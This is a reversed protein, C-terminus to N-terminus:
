GMSHLDIRTHVRVAVREAADVLIDGYPIKRAKRRKGRCELLASVSSVKALSSSDPPGSAASRSNDVEHTLPSASSLRMRGDDHPKEATSSALWAAMAGDLPSIFVFQM